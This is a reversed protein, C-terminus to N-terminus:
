LVTSQLVGLDSMCQRTDQTYPHADGFIRTQIALLDDFMLKSEEVRGLKSCLTAYQKKAALTMTATPGFKAKTWALLETATEHAEQYRALGRLADSRYAMAQFFMDLDATYEKAIPLVVNLLEVVQLLQHNHILLKIKNLMLDLRLREDNGICTSAIEYLHNAADIEYQFGLIDALLTTSNYRLDLDRGSRYNGSRHHRWWRRRMELMLRGMFKQRCNMCTIFADWAARLDGSAEKKKAYDALCELHVFGASDGRCACGRMLKLTGGEDGGLCLYCTAGKPAEEIKLMRELVREVAMEVPIFPRLGPDPSCVGKHIRKWNRKQCKESCYFCAKCKTCRLVKKADLVARCEDCRRM